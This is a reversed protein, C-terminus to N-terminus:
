RICVVAVTQLSSSEGRASAKAAYQFQVQFGHIIGKQWKIYYGSVEGSDIWRLKDKQNAIILRAADQKQASQGVRFALCGRNKSSFRPKHQKKYVNAHIYQLTLQFPVIAFYLRFIAPFGYIWVM